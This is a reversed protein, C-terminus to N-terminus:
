NSHIFVPKALVVARSESPVYKRAIEELAVFSTRKGQYDATSWGDSIFWGVMIVYPLITERLDFLAASTATAHRILPEIERGM